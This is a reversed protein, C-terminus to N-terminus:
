DWVFPLLETGSNLADVTVAIATNAVTALQARADPLANYATSQGLIAPHAILSELGVQTWYNTLKEVAFIEATTIESESDPWWPSLLLLGTTSPVLHYALDAVMWAGLQHGRLPEAVFLDLVIVVFDIPTADFQHAVENALWSDEFLGAFYEAEGSISDLMNPVSGEGLRLTLFEVWGGIVPSAHDGLEDLPDLSMEAHWDMLAPYDSLNTSTYRVSPAILTTLDAGADTLIKALDHLTIPMATLIGEALRSLSSSSTRNVSQSRARGQHRSSQLGAPWFRDGTRPAPFHDCQM